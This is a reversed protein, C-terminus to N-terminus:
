RAVLPVQSAEQSGDGNRATAMVCCVGRMRAPEAGVTAM